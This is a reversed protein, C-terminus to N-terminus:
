VLLPDIIRFAPAAKAQSAGNFSRIPVVYPRGSVNLVQAEIRFVKAINETSLLSEPTGQAHIKGKVLM